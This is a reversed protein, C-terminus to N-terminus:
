PRNHTSPLNDVLRKLNELTRKLEAIETAQEQLRRNLKQNLGQIAALAVGDADVTSIHKDDEGNFQFAAHFDQAVPGIHRTDPSNQYAWSQIPLTAVKELVAIPDVVAFDQKVNRDSPPNVPGATVLTGDFELTMANFGSKESYWRIFDGNSATLMDWYPSTGNIMRLRPSASATTQQLRLQPKSSNGAVTLHADPSDAGVGMAENVRLHGNTSLSMLNQATGSFYWNMVNASGGVAFDWYPKGLSQLRLKVFSDTSTTEIKIQPTSPGGTIHLQGEPTTEGIGVGSASMRMRESGGTAVALTNATPNFLGTDPDGGFSLGPTTASGVPVSQNASFANNQNKLAVNSSLRTDAMTGSTLQSANLSTLSAGNNGIFVSLGDVTMGAGGTEFRAGGGARVNFQNTGTSAFDNETADAWVFSGPHNAKARLGAALAYTANTNVTNNRGGPIVAHSAGAAIANDQGGSVTNFEAAPGINNNQGGAIVGWRANDAIDNAWGGGIVAFDAKVGLDNLWGGGVTGYVTNTSITNDMGGLIASSVANSRIHNRIGGGIVGATARIAIHNGLGGGIVGYDSAITNPAATGNQNTAGGGAITAGVVGPSVANAPSGGILNMAGDPLLNPDSGDGNNEIRLARQNNVFLELPVGTTTGLFLPNSVVGQDVTAAQTARIAYPAASISQRPVLPIFVGANHFRVGIELWREAGTFVGPGFDLMATFLGNSVATACNTLPGGVLSGGSGLDYIAFRLDYIGGVSSGGEELRGQYTFATSQALASLM